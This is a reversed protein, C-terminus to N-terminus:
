YRRRERLRISTAPYQRRGNGSKGLYVIKRLAGVHEQAVRFNPRVNGSRFLALLALGKAYRLYRGFVNRTVFACPAKPTGAACLM